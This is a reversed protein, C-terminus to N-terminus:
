RYAEALVEDHRESTDHHGSAGAAIFSFPKQHGGPITLHDHLIERVVSSMSAHRRHAISRIAEYTQEDLQLQTRVM